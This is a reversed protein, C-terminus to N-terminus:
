CTTFGLERAYASGLSISERDQKDAEQEFTNMFGGGGLGCSFNLPALDAFAKTPSSKSAHTDRATESTSVTKDESSSEFTFAQQRQGRTIKILKPYFSQWSSHQQLFQPLWQAFM